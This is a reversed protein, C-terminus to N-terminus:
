KLVKDIFNKVVDISISFGMNDVEDEVIKLTNVGIVKGYVDLLPGGSNGPNIAVDHQLYTSVEGELTRNVYSIIGFTVTGYYEYGNSNGIAIAFDGVTVSDNTAFELIEYDKDSEFSVIALDLNEDYGVCKANVYEKEYGFYAKIYLNDEIVHYNTLVYYTNGVKKFIFGTGVGAELVEKNGYFDVVVEQFNSVGIISNKYKSVIGTVTTNLKSLDIDGIIEYTKNDVENDFISEKEDDYVYFLVEKSIEDNGVLKITVTCIGCKEATLVNDSVSIIEENSSTYSYSYNQNNNIVPNLEVKEGIKLTQKVDVKIKVIDNIYTKKVIIKFANESTDTKAYIIAEGISVGNVVGDSDVTAVLENSSSWTCKENCELLISDGAYLYYSEIEETCSIFLPMILIIMIILIKRLKFKYSCRNNITNM